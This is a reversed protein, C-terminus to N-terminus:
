CSFITKMKAPYIYSIFHIFDFSGANPLLPSFSLQCVIASATSANNTARCAGPTNEHSTTEDCSGNLSIGPLHSERLKPSDRGHMARDGTYTGTSATDWRVKRQNALSHRGNSNDRSIAMMVDVTEGEESGNGDEKRMMCLVNKEQNRMKVEVMKEYMGM